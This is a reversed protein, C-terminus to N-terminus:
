LKRKRFHWISLLAIILVTSPLLISKYSFKSNRPMVKVTQENGARDIARVYITDNLTQNELLYPSEARKFDMKGEKIEYHDIGSEDDQTAFIITYKGAYFSSNTVIEPVFDNPPTQDHYDYASSTANISNYIMILGSQTKLNAPSAKGDNKIVKAATFNLAATGVRSPSFILSALLGPGLKDTEPDILGSFGGPIIGALNLTGAKLSAQKVWISIVSRGTLLDKPVLLDEPYTVELEIANLDEGEPDLMLDVKVDSGVSATTNTPEFYLRTADARTAFSWVVFGLAWGFVLFGFKLNSNPSKPNRQVKLKSSQSKMKDPGIILWYVLIKWVSRVTAM